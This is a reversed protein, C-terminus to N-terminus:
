KTAFAAAFHMEGMDLLADDLTLMADFVWTDDDGLKPYIGNLGFHYLAGGLMAIEASPFLDRLAPLINSSDTAESPDRAIMAEITPRATWRDNGTPRLSAPLNQRFRRVYDLNRDSWQFRTPGVFEFMALMGGPKLARKSWALAARVDSMHHLSSNWYVLDYRENVDMSLPDLAAQAALQCTQSYCYV